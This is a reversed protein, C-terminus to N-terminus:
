VVKTIRKKLKTLHEIAGILKWYHADSNEFKPLDDKCNAIEYLIYDMIKDEKSREEFFPCNHPDSCIIEPAGNEPMANGHYCDMELTDDDVFFMHHCDGCYLEESM